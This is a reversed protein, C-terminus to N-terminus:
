VSLLCAQVQQLQKSVQRVEEEAKVHYVLRGLAQITQVAAACRTGRRPLGRPHEEAVGGAAGGARTGGRTGGGALEEACATGLSTAEVHSGLQSDHGSELSGKM